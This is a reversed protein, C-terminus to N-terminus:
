TATLLAALPPCCTPCCLYYTLRVADFNDAAHMPCTAQRELAAATMGLLVGILLLGVTYPVFKPFFTKGFAGLLLGFACFFIAFRRDSHHKTGSEEHVPVCERREQTTHKPCVRWCRSDEWKPEMAGITATVNERTRHRCYTVNINASSASVFGSM